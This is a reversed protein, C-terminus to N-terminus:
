DLSSTAAASSIEYFVGVFVVGAAGLFVVVFVAEVALLVAAAFFVVGVAFFVVGVAFFVVGVAFFYFLVQDYAKQM